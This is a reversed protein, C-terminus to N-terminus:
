KINKLKILKFVVFMVIFILTLLFWPTLAQQFSMPKIDKSHVMAKGRKSVKKSMGLFEDKSIINEQILSYTNFQDEILDAAQDTSKYIKTTIDSTAGEDLEGESDESEDDIEDSVDDEACAYNAYLNIAYHNLNDRVSTTSIFLIVM